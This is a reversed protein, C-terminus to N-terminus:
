DQDSPEVVQINEWWNRPSKSFRRSAKLRLLGALHSPIWWRYPVICIVDHDDVSVVVPADGMYGVNKGLKM